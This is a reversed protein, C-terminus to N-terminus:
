GIFPNYCREEGITTSSDHGPYVRTEEPLEEVLRLLSARLAAGSGGPFDTRGASGAFLTDGAFLNDGAADYYCCSGPTHGPTHLVTLMFSGVTVTDGEKLLHDAQLTPLGGIGFVGSLNRYHDFLAPGDAEHLALAAGTAKQVEGAALMHDFHAHTLLIWRLRIGEEELVGYIRAANDAPDILIGEGSDDWLLYCNTGLAGLILQHLKM